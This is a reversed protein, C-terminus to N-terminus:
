AAVDNVPFDLRDLSTWRYGEEVFLIVLGGVEDALAASPHIHSQMSLLLELVTFKLLTIFVVVVVVLQVNCKCKKQNKM